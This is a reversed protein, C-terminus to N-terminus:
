RQQEPAALFFAPLGAAVCATAAQLLSSFEHLVVVFLNKVVHM